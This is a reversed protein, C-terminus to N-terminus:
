GKRSGAAHAGSRREYEALLCLIMQRTHSGPVGYSKGDAKAAEGLQAWEQETAGAMASSPIEMLFLLGTFYEVKTIIDRCGEIQRVSIM